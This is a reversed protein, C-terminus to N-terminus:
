LINMYFRVSDIIWVDIMETARCNTPKVKRFTNSHRHCKRNRIPFRSKKTKQTRKGNCTYTTANLRNILENWSIVCQRIAKWRFAWKTHKASKYRDSNVDGVVCEFLPDSSVRFLFMCVFVLTVEDSKAVSNQTFNTATENGVFIEYTVSGYILHTWHLRLVFM